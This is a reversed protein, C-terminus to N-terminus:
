IATYATTDVPVVILGLDAPSALAPHHPLVRVTYGFAGRRELPVSGEYRWSGDSQETRVLQRFEPDRIDDHEDVAGFAVQVIVDEPTLEGLDVVARLELEQGLEPADAVGSSEVHSVHVRSWAARVRATWAALDRAGSYGDAAMMASSAAAPAYLQVVYDRVMRSALVQPGLSQLTHRVMEIWRRPLKDRDVDYFRGRVQNEILDYLANAEQEDRVEPDVGEPASPIAWGNAGDYMEDWWGDRISLNLGGNLASKM